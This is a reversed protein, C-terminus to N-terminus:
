EAFIPTILDVDDLTLEWGIARASGRFGNPFRPTTIDWGITDGISWDVGLRPADEVNAVLALTNVGRGIIAAQNNAHGQLTATNTISTSPTFRFELTPRDPDGVVVHTSQPRSDASATSTALIDTAGGQSTWDETYEFTSLNGPMDFVADPAQGALPDVGIRAGVQLVPTIFRQGGVYKSEWTVTWEPGGIVGMLETLVSYVTKDSIDEYKRDRPTGANGDLNQVRFPIGGNTGASIYSAVITGIMSNQGAQTFQQDGIFRRDFYAELSALNELNLLDSEDAKRKGILYGQVPQDTEEDILVLYAAGGQTARDWNEPTTNDPGPYPLTASTTTYAGISASVKKCSLDPLDAIVLGTRAECSLWTYSM